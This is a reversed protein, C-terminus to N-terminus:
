KLVIKEILSVSVCYRDALKNRLRIKEKQESKNQYENKILLDRCAKYTLIGDDFMRDSVTPDIGYSEKLLKSIELKINTM